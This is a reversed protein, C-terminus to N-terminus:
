YFEDESAGVIEAQKFDIYRQYGYQSGMVKNMVVGMAMPRLADDDMKRWVSSKIRMCRIETEVDYLFDRYYDDPIEMVLSTKLFM